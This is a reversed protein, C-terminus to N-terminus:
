WQAVCLGKLNIERNITDLKKVNVCIIIQSYILICAKM